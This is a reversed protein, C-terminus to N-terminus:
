FAKSLLLIGSFGLLLRSFESFRKESIRQQIVHGLKIGIFAVPILAISILLLEKNWQGLLTYPIIKVTNMVGFFVSATALWVLKPLQKSLLYINIPPGGAHILTSTIGSTLSWFSAAQKFRSLYPLVSQWLAFLICLTGLLLQLLSTSLTGLLLGGITIGLIAAPIMKKLEAIEIHKRYYGITRADMILLLPLMLATAQPISIMLALLPVAIVGAGGAFGSKSIGTFIVGTIALLWFLPSEIPLSM